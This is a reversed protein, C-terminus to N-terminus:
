FGGAEGKRIAEARVWSGIDVKERHIEIEEGEGSAGDQTVIEFSLFGPSLTHCPLLTHTAPYCPKHPLPPPPAPLGGLAHPQPIPWYSACGSEVVPM